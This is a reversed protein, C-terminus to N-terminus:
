PPKIMNINAAARMSISVLRQCSAESEISDNVGHFIGQCGYIERVRHQLGLLSGRSAARFGLGEEWVGATKHQKRVCEPYEADEIFDRSGRWVEQDLGLRCSLPPTGMYIGGAVWGGGCGSSRRLSSTGRPRSLRSRLLDLTWVELTGCRNALGDVRRRSCSVSDTLLIFAPWPSVVVADCRRNGAREM